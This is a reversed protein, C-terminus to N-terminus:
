GGEPSALKLGLIGIIILSVFFFRALTAPDEFFIVGILFTGVAGIGTWIAYATGISIEKQAIMLFYSKM